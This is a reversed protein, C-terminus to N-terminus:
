HNLLYKAEFNIVIVTTFYSFNPGGAYLEYVNQAM